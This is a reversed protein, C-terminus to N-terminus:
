TGDANTDDASITAIDQLGDGNFDGVALDRANFTALENAQKAIGNVAANLFGPYNGVGPIAITSAATVGRNKFEPINNNISTFAFDQPYAPSMVMITVFLAIMVQALRRMVSELM